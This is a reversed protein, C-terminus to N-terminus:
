RCVRMKTLTPRLKRFRSAVPSRSDCIEASHLRAEEIRNQAALALTLYARALSVMARMPSHVGTTATTTVVTRFETEAATPHGAALQAAGLLIRGRPDEPWRRVLDRALPLTGADIKEPILAQPIRHSAEAAWASYDVAGIGAAGVAVAAVTGAFIAARRGFPPLLAGPSWVAILALGAVVGGIAGGLHGFYDTSGSAGFALPALAPIGFWLSTRRMARATAPDDRGAFSMVFLAAVVGVIAGSAGVSVVWPPNGIMSGIEGTLASLAFIAALWGRGIQGELRVGVLLLAFLNGVLHGFDGHLLPATFIRWWDNGNVVLERSAAGFAMLSEHSIESDSGLDFALRTELAFVLALVVTLALTLLPLLDLAQAMTMDGPTVDDEAEPRPEARSSASAARPVAVDAFGLSRATAAGAGAELGRRGFTRGEM